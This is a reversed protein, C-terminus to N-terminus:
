KYIFQGLCFYYLLLIILLIHQKHMNKSLVLTHELYRVGGIIRVARKQLVILPNVFAKFTSGWLHLGHRLYPSILKYYLLKLFFLMLEILTM